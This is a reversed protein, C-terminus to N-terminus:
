LLFFLFLLSLQFELLLPFTLPFIVFVLPSLILFTFQLFSSPFCLLLGFLFLMFSSARFSRVCAWCFTCLACAVWPWICLWWQLFSTNSFVNILTPTAYTESCIFIIDPLPRPFVPNHTDAASPQIFVTCLVTKSVAPFSLNHGSRKSVHRMIHKWIWIYWILSGNYLAHHCLASEWKYRMVMLIVM